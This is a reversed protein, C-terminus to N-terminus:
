ELHLRYETMRHEGAAMIGQLHEGDVVSPEGPEARLAGEFSALTAAVVAEDDVRRFRRGAEAVRVATRVVPVIHRSAHNPINLQSCLQDGVTGRLLGYTLKKKQEASLREDLAAPLLQYDMREECLFGILGHMFIRCMEDPKPELLDSVQMKARMDREDVYNLGGFGIVHDIYRWLAFIDERERASFRVGLRELADVAGGCFLGGGQYLADGLNVPVGWAKWDWEESGTCFERVAAHIMRVRVTMAFGPADRRMADPTTAAVLWRLTEILRVGASARRFSQAFLFPRTGGYRFAGPGATGGYVLAPPVLRGRSWYGLAGRRLQAWDVWHPVTDLEEFLTVLEDPAGDVADVGDALAQGLMRHGVAMGGEVAKLAKWAEYGVDDGTVYGDTIERVREPGFRTLAEDLNRTRGLDHGAPLWEPADTPHSTKM